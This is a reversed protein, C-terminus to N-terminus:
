KNYDGRKVREALFDRDYKDQFAYIRWGKWYKYKGSKYYDAVTEGKKATIKHAEGEDWNIALLWKKTM